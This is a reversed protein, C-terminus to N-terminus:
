EKEKLLKIEDDFLQAIPNNDDGEGGDASEDRYIKYCVTAAASLDGLKTFPDTIKANIEKLLERVTNYATKALPEGGSPRIVVCEVKEFGDFEAMEKQLVKRNVGLQRAIQAIRLGQESLEMARNLIERDM